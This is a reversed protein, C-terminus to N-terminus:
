KIKWIEKQVQPETYQQFLQDCFENAIAFWRKNSKFDNGLAGQAVLELKLIPLKDEKRTASNIKLHATGASEPM